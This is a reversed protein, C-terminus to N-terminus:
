ALSYYQMADVATGNIRIEFHLHAGYSDGTNGVKAISDGKNVVQGVNVNVASCHGYLTVYGGGHDIMVYYGYGGGWSNTKNAVIVTGSNAAVINAGYVNGGTIDTGKHARTKGNLTRAPSFPSSIYTYGPLPWGWTGGVYTKKTALEAIIKKIQAELEADQKDIEAQKARYDDEAQKLRAQEKESAAYAASLSNRSNELEAKTDEVQVLQADLQEKDLALQDLEANLNNIMMEDAESVRQIMTTRTLIDYFSSSGMLVSITGANNSMYMSRLRTKFDEIGQAVDEEQRQIEEEKLEIQNELTGIEDIIIRIKEETLAIQEEIYKQNQSEKEYNAKAAAIGAEADKKKQELAKQQKELQAQKEKLESATSASVPLATQESQLFMGTTLAMALALAIVKWRALRVSRRMQQFIKRM